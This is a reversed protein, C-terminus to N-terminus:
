HMKRAYVWCLLRHALFFAELPVMLWPRGVGEGWGWGWGWGLGGWVGGWPGGWMTGLAGSGVGVWGIAVGKCLWGGGLEM